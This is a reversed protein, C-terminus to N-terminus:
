LGAEDAARRLDCIYQELEARNYAHETTFSGERQKVRITGTYVKITYPEGFADKGSIENTM